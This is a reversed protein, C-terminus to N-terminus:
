LGVVLELEPGHWRAEAGRLLAVAPPNDSMVFAHLERIGAARALATLEDVLVRGIGRGQYEDAVAFAIEASAGDRALRAVGAPLPDGDVYAVLAHHTADVRALQTLEADSLRPKAGGFRQRRSEDGLREFLVRITETEGNGLTRITIGDLFRTQM